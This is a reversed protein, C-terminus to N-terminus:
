KAASISEKRLRACAVAVSENEFRFSRSAIASLRAAIQAVTLSEPGTVDATGGPTALLAAAASRAANERSIFAGRGEGAPGCIVGQSDFLDLFM